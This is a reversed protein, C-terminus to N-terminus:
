ETKRRIKELTLVLKNIYTNTTLRKVLKLNLFGKIYKELYARYVKKVIFYVPLSLLLSLTIGGAVFTNNIDLYALIPLGTVFRWFNNLYQAEILLYEGLRNALFSAGLVYILKFFPLTLVTSIKNIRLFFFLVFLFLAMPGNLPTFGLFLALCVGGAVEGATIELGLLFSLIQAPIKVVSFM